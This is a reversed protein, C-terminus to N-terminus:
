YLRLMMHQMSCNAGCLLRVFHQQLGGVTNAASTQQARPPPTVVRYFPENQWVQHFTFSTQLEADIKLWGFVFAQHNTWSRADVSVHIGLSYGSFLM